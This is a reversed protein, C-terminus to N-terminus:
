APLRPPQAIPRSPPVAPGGHGFGYDRLRRKANDLRLRLETEAMVIRQELDAVAPVPATEVASIATLAARVVKSVWGGLTMGSDRAARSAARQLDDSIGRVTWIKNM